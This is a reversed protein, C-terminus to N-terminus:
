IVNLMITFYVLVNNYLQKNLLVVDAICCCCGSSVGRLVMGIMGSWSDNVQHEAGWLGDISNVIEYSCIHTHKHKHRYKSNFLFYM